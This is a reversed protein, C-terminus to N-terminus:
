DSGLPVFKLILAMICEAAVIIKLYDRQSVKFVYYIAYIGICFCLMGKGAGDDMFACVTTIIHSAILYLLMAGFFVLKMIPNGQGVFYLVALLVMYGGVYPYATKYWVTPGAAVAAAAPRAGPRGPVGMKQGTRLNTGCKICM